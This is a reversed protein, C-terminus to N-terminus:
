ASRTVVNAIAEELRSFDVPKVLHASFGADRSRSLDSEMGYGSIAIAPVSRIERLSRLLDWGTGDPLGLDCIILDPFHHAFQRRAADSNEALAVEFGKRRLARGLVHCTDEHDEVVLIHLQKDPIITTQKKPPAERSLPLRVTFISGKELGESQATLDGRHAQAIGRALTLGIGVSGFRHQGGDGGFADFVSELRDNPIGAGSDRIAIFVEDNEQRVVLDVKGGKPTFHAANKLLIWFLQQLRGTDGQVLAREAQLDAILTVGKASFIERTLSMAARVCTRLTVPEHVIEMGGELIRALDLLDDILRAETQINRQIIEFTEKLESDLENEGLAASVASLVPALPTRLEHSLMALFRDKAGHARELEEGKRRAEAGVRELEASQAAAQQEAQMKYIASSIALRMADACANDKCLYGHAGARLLDQTTAEHGRSSLVVVPVKLTGEPDRIATLFDMGTGDPFLDDLIVCDPLVERYRALGTDLRSEEFFRYDRQTDHKLHGHLRGRDQESSDVMLITLPKQM